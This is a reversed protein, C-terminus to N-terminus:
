RAMTAPEVAGREPFLELIAQNLIQGIPMNQRIAALKFPLRLARNIKFYLDVTQREDGSRPPIAQPEVPRVSKAVLDRDDAADAM